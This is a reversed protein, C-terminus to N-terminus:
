TAPSTRCSLPPPPPHCSNYEGRASIDTLHTGLSDRPLSSQQQSPLMFIDRSPSYLYQTTDSATQNHYQLTACYMNYHTHVSIRMMWLTKTQRGVALRTELAIIGVPQSAVRWSNWPKWLLEQPWLAQRLPCVNLSLSQMEWTAIIGVSQSAVRWSNWPKWLLEQPWLAQRLPCVNLSLSQM